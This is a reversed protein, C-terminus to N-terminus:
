EFYLKGDDGVVIDCGGLEKSLKTLTTGIGKEYYSDWFGAGHGNRSLWFDHALDTLDYYDSLDPVLIQAQSIFKEFQAEQTKLSEIDIDVIDYNHELPESNNDTSSWLATELYQTFYNTM